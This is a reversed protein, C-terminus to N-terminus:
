LLLVKACPLIDLVTSLFPLVYAISPTFKFLISCSLEELVRKSAISGSLPDGSLEIAALPTPGSFKIKILSDLRPVICM